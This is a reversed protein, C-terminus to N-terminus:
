THSPILIFTRTHSGSSTPSTSSSPSSPSSAPSPTLRPFVQNQPSTRVPLRIKPDRRHLPRDMTRPIPITRDPHHKKNLLTQTSPHIALSRVWFMRPSVLHITSSSFSCKGLNVFTSPTLQTPPDQPSHFMSHANSNPHLDLYRALSRVDRSEFVWYSEGDDDVQNWFRLGVLTRGSVNQRLSNNLAILLPSPRSSIRLKSQM